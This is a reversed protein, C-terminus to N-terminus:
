MQICGVKVTTSIKKWINESELDQFGLWFGVGAKNWLTLFFKWKDYKKKILILM